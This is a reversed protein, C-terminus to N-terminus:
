IGNKLIDLIEQFSYIFWDAGAKVSSRVAIGGYGIFASAADQTRTDMDTAGDGVMVITQYDHEKRLAQLVETKGGSRSTPRSRDFGAYNGEDNFLIENAYVNGAPIRLELALPAIVNQFGGSVLYVDTGQKHLLKVVERVGPSWMPVGETKLFSELADRTMGHDALLQLREALAEEFKINGNMAKSTLESIEEMVGFHQGLLDIGETQVVTSDVDFFIADAELLLKQTRSVAEPSGPPAVPGNTNNEDELPVTESFQMTKLNSRIQLNQQGENSFVQLRVRYGNGSCTLLSFWFVTFRMASPYRFM